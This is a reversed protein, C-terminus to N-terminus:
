VSKAKQAIRRRGWLIRGVTVLLWLLFFGAGLPLTLITMWGSVFMTYLMEGRDSGLIVCMHASGEDLHCGALSAIWAAAFMMLLPFVSVLAIVALVALHRGLRSGKPSQSKNM